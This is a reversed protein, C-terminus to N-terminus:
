RLDPIFCGIADTTKNTIQKGKLMAELVQELDRTTPAPRAKGFAVYRDDIRGRYVMRGGPAFVAAEPTVQAGTMKVLKHEPDRLASLRYEYEKMHNRIIVSTEGPDPYVLWFRVGSKAFKEHLRRLEPAYRNSIPCDTRIFILVIAKADKARLPEIQRGDLDLLQLGTAAPEDAFVVVAGLLIAAVSLSFRNIRSSLM